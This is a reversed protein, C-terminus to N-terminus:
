QNAAATRTQNASATRKRGRGALLTEIVLLGLAILLFFRWFSQGTRAGAVVELLEADSRAVRIDTGEFGRLLESEPLSKVDSEATEVNVAIPLGPAQVSVRALYFGAEGARELLAVYHNRLERVPVTITEGSPTDFVADSADPQDVYSLSLSDGVTRPREFERATLYTVMQQLLMPFIPTIALNNWAPEASTTFMFVQGRGLTHELLVPSGSGALALITASAPTPKVQLLKGFQTESFLDDPLSRLPRCVPHDPLMPDLPRGLGGADSVDVAGEIEAPLLPTGELASRKNWSAAKINEGAFWILGNGARVFEELRLAQDPTIDPVDALIVVDFKNLDQSPLINWPVSQVSFDEEGVGEGRARLATAILGGSNGAREPSGEVCLISVQERIVAVTRRSDDAPLSDGDLKATIRVAGPNYFPVFLSVTESAGPAISPITKTDVSINNAMGEVRVDSVPAAGYNHVSARYRATTGKRLVGSVLELDTIALNDSGGQIPVLCLDAISVLDEFAEGMSITRDTWDRQQMDTVLYIEKRPAEMGDALEKLRRPLSDLDLTEPTAKQDQLIAKFRELEFAMNHAVVRHEGGLVIMSVPSGHPIGEAIMEIKELARDFRTATGDSHQMSFSADLAIIVGTSSEGVQSAIGEVNKMVPKALALVLFLVALCRLCLLLIDRLRLQTSRVRVSQNLFQMAAWDTRKVKHRNLLHALIPLGIGLAAFLLLPNFFSM